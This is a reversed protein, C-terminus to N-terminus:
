GKNMYNLCLSNFRQSLQPKSIDQALRGDQPMELKLKTLKAFKENVLTSTCGTDLLAKLTHVQNQKRNKVKMRVFVIPSIDLKQKKHMPNGALLKSLSFNNYSINDVESHMFGRSIRPM